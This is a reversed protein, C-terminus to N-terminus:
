TEGVVAINHLCKQILSYIKDMEYPKYVFGSAGYALCDNVTDEDDLTSAIVVPIHAHKANAKVKELFTFGNMVPMDLDLLIFDIKKRSLILLAEQGDIAFEVQYDKAELRRKLLQCNEEVDDIVLLTIDARPM